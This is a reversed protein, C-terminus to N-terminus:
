AYRQSYTQACRSSFLVRMNQGSKDVAADGVQCTTPSSFHVYSPILKGNVLPYRDIHQYPMNGLSSFVYTRRWPNRRSRRELCWCLFSYNRRKNRTLFPIGFVTLVSRPRYWDNQFPVHQPHLNFTHHHTVPPPNRTPPVGVSSSRLCMHELFTRNTRDLNWCKLM